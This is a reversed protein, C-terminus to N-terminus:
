PFFAVPLFFRSKLAAHSDSATFCAQGNIQLAQPLESTTSLGEQVQFRKVHSVMLAFLHLFYSTCSAHGTLHRAPYEFGGCQNDLLVFTCAAFATFWSQVRWCCNQM